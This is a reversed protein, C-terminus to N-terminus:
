SVAYTPCAHNHWRPLPGCSWDFIWCFIVSTKGKWLFLDAEWELGMSSQSWM